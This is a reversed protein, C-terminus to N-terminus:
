AGGLEAGAPAAAWDEDVATMPWGGTDGVPAAAWDENAEELLWGACAMDEQQQQQQPPPPPVGAAAAAGGLQEAAPPPAGGAAAALAEAAARLQALTVGTGQGRLGAVVLELLAQTAQEAAPRLVSSVGALQDDLLAMSGEVSMSTWADGFYVEGQMQEVMEAPVHDAPQMQWGPLWFVRWGTLLEWVVCCVAYIDAAQAQVPTLPDRATHVLDVVWQPLGPFAGQQVAALQEQNLRKLMLTAPM